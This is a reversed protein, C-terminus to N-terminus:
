CFDRNLVNPRNEILYLISVETPFINESKRGEAALQKMFLASTLRIAESIRASYIEVIHLYYSEDKIETTM